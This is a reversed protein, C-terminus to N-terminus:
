FPLDDVEDAKSPMPAMDTAAGSPAGGQPAYGGGFAPAAAYNDYGQPAEQAATKRQLRWARAETFWRGNHERSELNISVTVNEGERLSAGEQAKDGWFAVCVKKSFEGPLDFVVEQKTWEGRAGQGKVVPLVRYVVGEFEM